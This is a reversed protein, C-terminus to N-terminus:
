KVKSSMVRDVIAEGRLYDTDEKPVGVKEGSRALHRGTKADNRRGQSIIQKLEPSAHKTKAIHQPVDVKLRERVWHKVIAPLKAALKELYRNM